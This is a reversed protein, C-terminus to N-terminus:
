REENFDSYLGILDHFINEIKLFIFVLNKSKILYYRVVIVNVFFKLLVNRLQKVQMVKLARMIKLFKVFKHLCFEQRFIMMLRYDLFIIFFNIIIIALLVPIIIFCITVAIFYMLISMLTMILFFFLFNNM